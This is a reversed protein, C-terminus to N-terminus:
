FFFKGKNECVCCWLHSEYKNIDNRLLDYSKEYNKLCYLSIPRKSEPLEEICYDIYDMCFTELLVRMCEVNRGCAHLAVPSMVKCKIEEM